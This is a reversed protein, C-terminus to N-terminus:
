PGALARVAAAPPRMAASRPLVAAVSACPTVATVPRRGAMLLRRRVSVFAAPMGRGRVSMRRMRVAARVTMRRMRVAAPVRGSGLVSMFAAPMV